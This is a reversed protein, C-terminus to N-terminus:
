AGEPKFYKCYIIRDDGPRYYDRIRSAEQYGMRQYFQRTPAYQAKSSTEIIILRGQNQRIVSEVHRILAKGYGQKHKGPHVAIWYLDTTGETMPVPGYCVYGEAIGIDTEVVAINYDGEDPEMLYEDILEQAVQEEEKTFMKTAHILKLVTDRDKDEMPRINM